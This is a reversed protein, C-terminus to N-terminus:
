AARPLKLAARVPRLLKDAPGRPKEIAPALRALGYVRDRLDDALAQRDKVGAIAAFPIPAGIVVMQARGATAETIQAIARQGADQLSSQAFLDACTYGTVCLEPFLVVDSDSARELVGLIEAANASPNAVTIRLSVCSIRVFGHNNM